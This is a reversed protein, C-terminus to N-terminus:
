PMRAAIIGMLPGTRPLSAAKGQETLWYFRGPPLDPPLEYDMGEWGDERFAYFAWSAGGAEAADLVDDLYAGCDPWRRMCGFEAVVLHSPPVGQARAWDFALGLHAAVAAKDWALPAGAYDTTAGPYRLPAGRKLNPASTADYPEYMHVAYLARDDALRRPWAALSRPSAYWGADVMVPTVPDVARIAAIVRDYFAPLDRPAGAVSAQWDRIAPLPANEPLGGKLEPAPENLLNYAAVAPHDKLAAALDRWFAAAQDAFAPDSWLRDDFRGGNQQRWRAGPLSLPTVAVQLGAAQAADLTTRLVALDAAALGDYRDADGILFDRGEGKWKSFSLRVWTAGLGKLAQFYARDPPAANFSNGGARPQDWFAIADAAHAPAALLACGLLVARLLRPM